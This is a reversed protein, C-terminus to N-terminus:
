LAIACGHMTSPSDAPRTNMAFSSPVFGRGAYGDNVAFATENSYSMPWASEAITDPWAGYWHRWIPSEHPVMGTEGDGSFISTWTGPALLLREALAEHLFEVDEARLIRYAGGAGMGIGKLLNTNVVVIAAYDTANSLSLRVPSAAFLPCTSCLEVMLASLAIIRATM